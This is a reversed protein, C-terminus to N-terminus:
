NVPLVGVERLMSQTGPLRLFRVFGDIESLRALPAVLYLTKTFPYTGAEFNEPTPAVGNIAILNLPRKELRIQVFSAGILSNEIREAADTNDQDTAAVPVDPRQRAADLAERMGAFISAMLETDSESKPRLIVRLPTGDPWAAKEARYLGAIEAARLTPPNKRPTALVFPTRFAIVTTMDSAVEDPKLPRASIAFDLKLDRAARIAGSSGLSPVVLLRNESERAYAAGLMELLATAAGTGGARLPEAHSLGTGALTTVITLAFACLHAFAKKM